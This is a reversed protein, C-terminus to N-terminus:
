ALPGGGSVEPLYLREMRTLLADYNEVAELKLEQSAERNAYMMAARYPIIMHLSSDIAAETMSNGGSAYMRKEPHM